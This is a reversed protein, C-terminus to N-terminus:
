RYETVNLSIYIYDNSIMYKAMDCLSHCEQSLLPTRHCAGSPPISVAPGQKSCSTCLVNPNISLTPAAVLCRLKQAGRTKDHIESSEQDCTATSLYSTVAKPTILTLISLLAYAIPIVAIVLRVKLWSALPAFRAACSPGTNIMSRPLGACTKSLM